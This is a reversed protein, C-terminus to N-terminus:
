NKEHSSKKLSINNLRILQDWPGNDNLFSFMKPMVFVKIMKAGMVERGLYMLGSYHGIHAHTLFIGELKTKHKYTIIHHQEPFDPTSDFIWSQNSRPDILGICSVKESKKKGWENKCCRKICNTHPIGGDQAIGLVIVYPVKSKTNGFLFNSVLLVMPLLKMM